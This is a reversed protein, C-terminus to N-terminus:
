LVGRVVDAASGSRSARLVLRWWARQLSCPVLAGLRNIVSLQWPYRIEPRGAEVERVFVVAAESASRLFPMAYRVGATMETTVFGPEIVCLKIGLPEAEFRLGDVLARLAVKSATYPGSRPLAGDAAMSGTVAITGGRQATMRRLLPEIWHLQGLYNLQMVEAATRASFSVGDRRAEACCEVFHEGGDGASGGANLYARDLRPWAALAEIARAVDTPDTTDGPLVLAESAGAGLCRTAVEDLRSRRRAFLALHAGKSAYVEAVAAGIGSSAGTILVHVSGQM